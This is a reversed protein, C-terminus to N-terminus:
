YGRARPAFTPPLIMAVAPMARLPLSTIALMLPFEVKRTVRRTACGDIPAVDAVHRERRMDAPTAAPMVDAYCAPAAAKARCCRYRRMSTHRFVYRILM